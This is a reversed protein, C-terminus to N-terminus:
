KLKDKEVIDKELEENMEILANREKRHNQAQSNFHQIILNPDDM